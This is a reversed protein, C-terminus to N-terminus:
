PIGYCYALISLRTAMTITKNYWTHCILGHQRTALCGDIIVFLFKQGTKLFPIIINYRVIKKKYIDTNVGLLPVGLHLRTTIKKLVYVIFLKYYFRRSCM